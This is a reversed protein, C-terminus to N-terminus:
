KWYYNLRIRYTSAGFIMNLKILKEETEWTTNQFLFNPGGHDNITKVPEESQKTPQGFQKVLQKKIRGYETKYANLKVAESEWKIQDNNYNGYRNNEWDYSVYRLTSDPKSYFYEAYIPLLHTKERRVILPNSMEFEKVKPFISESLSVNKELLKLDPNLKSEFGKVEDVKSQKTWLNLRKSSSCGTVISGILLLFIIRNTM